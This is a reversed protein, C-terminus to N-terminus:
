FLKKPFKKNLHKYAKNTAMRGKSTRNILGLQLLYPEYVELINNEEESATAALAQLGVPGGEFKEIIIELLNRDKPELGLEDIEMERLGLETIKEDIIGDGEIQAFDRIRKLLRNAVRPTFRSCQSIIEVAPKDIETKLIGASKEIIEQINKEKYLDIQFIAGFRSRLPSSLLGVRTTAGILTFRPLEIKLIKAMPGTGIIINLNFDEMAPYITEECIKNLRHIEDIFLVDGDSLSTLIAALDGPKQISPGSTVRINTGATQAVLHSLTTKGLGPGGCFLLHDVAEKREQAAQLMIQINRKIKEQGIFSEWKKPRLTQDLLYEKEPVPDINSPSSDQPDSSSNNQKVIM